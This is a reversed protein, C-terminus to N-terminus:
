ILSKKKKVSEYAVIYMGADWAQLNGFTERTIPDIWEPFNGRLNNKAINELAMKAQKIRGLKVLALVYFCGIFPWIGGNLYHNPNRADNDNFYDQWEKSGKKIPPYISRVGSPLHLKNKELYRIIKKSKTIDALGFVITLINGLTDFWNGIEKYKGHNKWRWAVYFEGNWLARDNHKDIIKRLTLATSKSKMLELVKFYLAQTNITRGYKHPFADQWDTTPLQLLTGDEGSDQSELWSLAADINKKYKKFLLNDRYRKKYIYHGIVYWLSSDISAFDVHPKRNQAWKDVANPIQGHKSQHNSLTIISQKFVQQFKKKYEGSSKSTYDVFCAGIMSIMSDRAWIANYGDVGASAYLGHKTSSKAIVDVAKTYCEDIQLNKNM